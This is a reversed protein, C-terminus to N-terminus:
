GLELKSKLSRKNKKKTKEDVSNKRKRNSHEQIIEMNRFLDEYEEDVVKEDENKIIQDVEEEKITPKVLVRTLSQKMYIQLLINILVFWVIKALNVLLKRIKRLFKIICIHM